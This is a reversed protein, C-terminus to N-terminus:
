TRTRGLKALILDVLESPTTSRLDVFGVTSTMGPVEADDFRAPLIFEEKAVLSRAQAHQREHTPWAKAVYHESVFMVVYRSNQQYVKALHDVLNKGWLSAKEFKDYFVSIGSAKLLTAVEEVYERNEGAFSLAVDYLVPASPPTAARPAPTAGPAPAALPPHQGARRIPIGLTNTGAELTTLRSLRQSILDRAFPVLTANFTGCDSSLWELYRKVLALEDDFAKKAGAVDEGVRIFRFELENETLRAAPIMSSFTNPKCRFMDRDGSYPVFFSATIGPVFHPGPGFTAYQFSLSRDRSIDVKTEEVSASIAGETLVPVHLQFRSAFQEAVAEIPGSRLQDAHAQEIATRLRGRQNEQVAHFDHSWFLYDSDSHGWRAM